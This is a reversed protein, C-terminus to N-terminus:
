AKEEYLYAFLRETQAARAAAWAAARAAAGAATWPAAGAATRPAAWAAAREEDTAGGDAFLRATRENWTDLRRILRAESVVIKDSQEIMDGRWEAEWIEPGLWSVLDSERCLHYGRVCPEITDIPPMWEGAVWQGTGGHFPKLDPGLVKFTRM